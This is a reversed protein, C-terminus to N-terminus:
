IYDYTRVDEYGSVWRNNQRCLKLQDIAAINDRAASDLVQSSIRWVGVRYPERKEAAIIFVDVVSLAVEQLLSRYFALQHAYGFNRAEVEFWSLDDVTKLDIVGRDPHVWDFRAQCPVGRHKTRVVGEPVGVSLLSRAHEHEQVAQDIRDCLVSTEESVVPKSQQAAWEAHAKTETGFPRGTKPNIPGGVIYRQAFADAGELVRCHIARGVAFCHRDDNAVLGLEKKRFLLPNRRFEALAHSSLYQSRKSNYTEDSEQQLFSLPDTQVTHMIM